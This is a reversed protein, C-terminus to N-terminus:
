SRFPAGSTAVLNYFERLNTGVHGLVLHERETTWVTTLMGASWERGLKAAAV